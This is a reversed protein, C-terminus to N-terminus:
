EGIKLLTLTVTIAAASGSRNNISLYITNARPNDNNFGMVGPTILQSAGSGYTRVEAIVGSGPLPDNGESRNVDAQRSLDDCYVRVWSEATAAIKYLVYGPYGTIELEGRDNDAISVSTGQKDEISPITASAVNEWKTTTTNYQLATETGNALTAGDIDTDDLGSLTSSGGSGSEDARPEWSNNAAVWKLVDGGNPATTVTDVDDLDNIGVPITPKNTLDDYDGSEAVTSLTPKAKIFDLKTNDSQSWDPQIPATTGITIKSDNADWDITTTNNSTSDFPNNGAAIEITDTVGSSPVLNITANNSNTNGGQLDYTVSGGGNNNNSANLNVVRNVTDYTVQVNTHSGNLLSTAAADKAMNDTYQTVTQTPARFTITSDDTREISIGGAGAFKIEDTDGSVTETLKFITDNPAADEEASIAYDYVIGTLTIEDKNWQNQAKGITLGTSAHLVFTNTNGENDALKIVKRADNQNQSGGSHDETTLTYSLQYNSLLTQFDSSTGSNTTVIRNTTWSNGDSYYLAANALSYALDGANQFSVVPFSGIDAYQWSITLSSLDPPTYTFQGNSSDYTVDGSGSSTPNPKVVSLDGLGIGGSGGTGTGRSGGTDIWAASNVDQYWIKLQGENSKWWLDGDNPNSPPTDDTTVQAGQSSGSIVGTNADITITTGDVKVGGLTGAATVGAIPLDYQEAPTFEFIGTQQDYNLAGGANPTNSTVVDFSTLSVFTSDLYWGAGTTGVDSWRIVNGDSPTGTYKVDLLANLNFAGIGKLYGELSHDGWGHAENWDTINQQTISKVYGPVTPDSETFGTLFNSLDPPTYDLVGTEADYTLDATGPNNKNVVINVNSQQLNFVDVALENLEVRQDEFTFTKPVNRLIATM